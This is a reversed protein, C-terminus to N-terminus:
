PMEVRLHKKPITVKGGSALQVAANRTPEMTGDGDGGPMEPIPKGGVTLQDWPLIKGRKGAHDTLGAVRVFMGPRLAEAVYTGCGGCYQASENMRGCELCTGEPKILKDAASLDRIELMEGTDFALMLKDADEHELVVGHEGFLHEEVPVALVFRDGAKM